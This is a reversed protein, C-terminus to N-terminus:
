DELLSNMFEKFRKSSEPLEILENENEDIKNGDLDIGYRSILQQNLLKIHEESDGFSNEEMKTIIDNLFELRAPNHELYFARLKKKLDNEEPSEKEKKKNKLNNLKSELQEYERFVLKNNKQKIYENAFVISVFVISSILFVGFCIAGSQISQKASPDPTRLYRFEQLETSFTNENNAINEIKRVFGLEDLYAVSYNGSNIDGETVLISPIIGLETNLLEYSEANFIRTNTINENTIIKDWLGNNERKAFETSLERSEVSIWSDGVSIIEPTEGSTHTTFEHTTRREVNHQDNNKTSFISTVVVSRKTWSWPSESQTTLSEENTTIIVYMQDNLYNTSNHDWNLSMNVSHATKGRQCFGTYDRLECEEFSSIDVRLETNEMISVDADNNENILKTKFDNVVTNTYGSYEFYDGVLYDAKTVKFEDDSSVNLPIILLFLITVVLITYKKMKGGQKNELFQLQILVMM